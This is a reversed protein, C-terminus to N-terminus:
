IYFSHDGFLLPVKPREHITRGNCSTPYFRIDISVRPLALFHIYREPPLNCRERIHERVYVMVTLLCFTLIISYVILVIITMVHSRLNVALPLISYIILKYILFLNIRFM